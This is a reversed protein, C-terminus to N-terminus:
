EKTIEKPYRNYLMGRFRSSSHNKDLIALMYYM